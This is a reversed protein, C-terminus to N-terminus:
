AGACLELGFDDDTKAVMQPRVLWTSELSRFRCDMGLLDSTQAHSGSTSGSATPSLSLCDTANGKRSWQLTPDVLVEM